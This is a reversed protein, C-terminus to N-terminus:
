RPPPQSAADAGPSMRLFANGDPGLLIHAVERGLPDYEWLEGFHGVPHEAPEGDVGTGVRRVMRGFPDYVMELQHYWGDMTPQGDRDLARIFTPEEGSEYTFMVTAPGRDFPTLRGQLDVCSETIRRGRRDYESRQEVCGDVAIPESEVDLYRTAVPHGAPNRRTIESAIGRADIALPHGDADLFDQRVARGWGDREFRVRAPRGEQRLLEGDIGFYREEVIRGWADRERHTKFVGDVLMPADALDYHADWILREAGDFREVRHAFGSANAMPEGDLGNYFTEELGDDGYTYVLTAVGARTNIALSGSGNECRWETMRNITDFTFKALPCGTRMHNVFGGDPGLCRIESWNGNRDFSLERRACGTDAEIVPAGDLGFSSHVDVRGRRDVEDIHRAWGLTSATPEGAADFFRMDSDGMSGYKKTFSAYGHATDRLSGDVDLCEVRTANGWVDREIQLEHCWIRDSAHGSRESLVPEGKLGFSAQSVRNGFTDYVVTETAAGEILLPEERTGVWSFSLPRDHVEGFILIQGHYGEPGLVPESEPGYYRYSNQRDLEDYTVRLISWGKANWDPRGDEGLIVESRRNGREDYEMIQGYGDVTRMPQGDTGVYAERVMLGSANVEHDLGAYGASNLTLEATTDRFRVSVSHGKANRVEDVTAYGEASEDPAGDVDLCHTTLAGPRPYERAWHACGNDDAMPEGSADLCSRRSERGLEDYETLEERCGNRGPVLAGAFGEWAYRTVLDPFRQDGFERVMAVTDDDGMVPNDDSDVHVQRVVRQQDDREYRLKPDRTPVTGDAVWTKRTAILGTSPDDTELWISGILDFEMCRVPLGDRHSCRHMIGDERHELRDRMLVQETPGLYTAVSIRGEPDYEQVIHRAGSLADEGAPNAYVDTVQSGVRVVRFAAHFPDPEGLVLRDGVWAGARFQVSRYWEVREGGDAMWAFAGFGVMAVIAVALIAPWIPRGTEPTPVPVITGLTAPHEPLDFTDGQSIPPMDFTDQGDGVSSVEELLPEPWTDLPDPTDGCWIELLEKANAPRDNPDLRLCRDIAVAIRAPIDPVVEEIPEYQVMSVSYLVKVIDSGAFARKGSLLEYFLAGLSFVDARQDVRAADSLQEPAIYAPTGMGMGTRTAGSDGKSQLLKVLGFDTVKPVLKGDVVCLLVNEPKLDRHVLGQDHAVCIARLIRRALLDAGDVSLRHQRLFASLNPGRVYEMVLGPVGHVDVIDIVNVISPHMLQSQVQGERLLRGRVQPSPSKIVKLASLVGLQEHRILYVTAMGGEGLTRVVSYRDVVTGASLVEASKM